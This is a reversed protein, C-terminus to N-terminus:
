MDKAIYYVIANSDLVENLRIALNKEYVMVEGKGIVRGNVFTDVSEGAPKQLDIVSGREFRLVERLPISTSGLEAMFTVEMDLLGKYDNILEELYTTLELERPNLTPQKKLKPNVSPLNALTPNSQINVGDKNNNQNDM